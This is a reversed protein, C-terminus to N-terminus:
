EKKTLYLNMPFLLGVMLYIAIGINL